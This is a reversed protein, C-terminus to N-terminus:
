LTMLYAELAKLDADGLHGGWGMEGKSERLLDALTAYRGDHFYPATGGIFALSPTELEPGSGVGHRVGDSGFGKETHCVSCGVTEDHFLASGRSVLEASQSAGERNPTAMEHCYSLLADLETDDLGSGGLRAFTQVVHAAVTEADGQWGFPRTREDLRGALMPTQRPGHPTPWSLGDDRGDPHCSACARGDASIRRDGAAHFLERGLQGKASLARAAPPDGDTPLPELKATTAVSDATSPYTFAPPGSQEPKPPLAIRSLEGAFQSWVIAEGTADDIAIGTPGSGVHWRGRATTSLPGAKTDFALVEDTGLCSVLVMGRDTSVAAARPLFCGDRRTGGAFNSRSTHADFKANMVRVTATARLEGQDPASALAARHAGADMQVLAPQHSPYSESTGYGGTTAEGRHVLVQPIFVEDGALAVAFGQVAKRDHHNAFQGGGGRFDLPGRVPDVHLVCGRFRRPTTDTGALSLTLPETPAAGEVPLAVRSVASGIAHAVYATAGDEAIAVGRPERPLAVSHITEGSPIAITVLRQAWASTVALVDGDPNTALGVPETPTKLTAVPTLTTGDQGAELGIVVNRDRVAVWIRGDGGVVLQSPKGPLRHHSLPTFDDAKLLRVASADEDAVVAVRLQGLAALAVTSGITSTSELRTSADGLVTEAQPPPELTLGLRDLHESRESACAAAALLSAALAATM